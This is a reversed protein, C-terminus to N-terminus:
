NVQFKTRKDMGFCKKVANEDTKTYAEILSKTIKEPIKYKSENWMRRIVVTCHSSDYVSSDRKIKEDYSEEYKDYKHM